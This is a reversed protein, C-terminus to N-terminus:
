KTRKGNNSIISGLYISNPLNKVLNDCLIHSKFFRDSNLIKRGIKGYQVSFYRSCKM